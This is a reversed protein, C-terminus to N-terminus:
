EAFLTYSETMPITLQRGSKGAVILSYEPIRGRATFGVFEAALVKGALVRGEHVFTCARGLWKEAPPHAEPDPVALPLEPAAPTPKPHTM